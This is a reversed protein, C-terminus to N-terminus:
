KKAIHATENSGYFAALAHMEEPTLQKAIVRMQEGIDNARIGQAFSALQSEIYAAEQNSLPPAGIKRGAPGHCAVCPAITRQPDGIYVLRAAPDNKQLGRAVLPEEERLSFEQQGAADPEKALAAFYAAVDASDQPPLAKAIGQM